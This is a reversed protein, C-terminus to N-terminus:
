NLTLNKIDILAAAWDDPKDYMMSHGADKIVTYSKAPAQLAELYARSLVEPGYHDHEGQIFHIPIDSQMFTQTLDYSTAYPEVAESTITMADIYSDIEGMTYYPSNGAFAYDVMEDWLGPTYVDGGRFYNLGQYLAAIDDTDNIDFPEIKAIQELVPAVQQETALQKVWDFGNQHSSEWGIREGSPIYAHYPSSDQQIVLFGLASGWSHGTLFIKDQGFRERLINTLEMTDSVLKDASLDDLTLAPDYSKGAGRQDWHVVTFNEELAVPQIQEAFVMLTAGPGGHLVLLVPNTVDQTRILVWQDVGGLTVEELLALGDPVIEGNADVIPPIETILQEPAPAAEATDPAMMTFVVNAAADAAEGMNWGQGNSMMLISVGSDPYIRMKTSMGAGGGDHEVFPHEATDNVSWGLGWRLSEGSNSLQVEQMAAASEQSLIRVGDYEGGNAHALVFRIAEDAPGILGSGAGFVRFNNMWAHTEDVERIFEDGDNRSKASNILNVVGDKQDVSVAPAAANSIMYENSYFFDTNDMGLPVLIHERVYDSFTQGSIQAVIQGLTVVGPTSYSSMAGPEFLLEPSQGFFERVIKDADRIPQDKLSLNGLIFEGPDGLGSSHSLLQRVTIQHEGPFYDLYDSVPADLDVSGQEVLQMIATATVMKTMSAWMFVTDASVPMDAPGDALGFGKSYIAENGVGITIAMGPPVDGVFNAVYAEFAPVSDPLDAEGALAFSQIVAMASGPPENTLGADGAFVLCHGVSADMQCLTTVGSADAKLYFVMEWGSFSGAKFEELESSDIDLLDFAGNEAAAVEAADLSVVHMTLDVDPIQFTAFPAETDLREWQEPISITFPADPGLYDEQAVASGSTWLGAGLAVVSITAAIQLIKNRYM